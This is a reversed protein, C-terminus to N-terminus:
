AENHGMHFPFMPSKAVPIIEEANIDLIYIELGNSKM